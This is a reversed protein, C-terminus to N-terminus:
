TNEALLRGRIGSLDLFTHTETTGDVGCFAILDDPTDIDFSIGAGEIIEVNGTLALANRRHREFSGLGFATAMLNPPALMIGNTGDGDHAAALRVTPGIAAAALRDIESPAVMPIDGPLILLASQEALAPQSLAFGIAENYGVNASEAVVEVGFEAFAPDQAIILTKEINGAAALAKLVDRLMANVLGMREGDTLVPALRQKADALDKMPVVAITM